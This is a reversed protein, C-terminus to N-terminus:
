SLRSPVSEFSHEECLHTVSRQHHCWRADLDSQSGDDVAGGHLLLTPVMTGNDRLVMGMTRRTRTTRPGDRLPVVDDEDVEDDRRARVRLLVSTTVNDEDDKNVEDHACACSSM